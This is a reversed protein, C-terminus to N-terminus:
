KTWKLKVGHMNVKTTDAHRERVAGLKALRTHKSRYYEPSHQIRSSKKKVAMNTDNVSLLFLAQSNMDVAPSM